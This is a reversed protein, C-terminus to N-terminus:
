EDGKTNKRAAKKATRKRTAKKASKRTTKKASRKKAARKRGGKAEKEALLTVAQDMSIEDPKTDKPITANTKEHKVYPGYRGDLVQVKQGTEPHEGLDKLVKASARKRGRGKPQALIEIAEGLALSKMHDMDRLSRFDRDGGEDERCVYPGFRGLGVLVKGGEPHAGIEKPLSVLFLADDLTVKTPDWDRPISARPPKPAKKDGSEPTEGLQVYPGYRGDLLYVQKGTEPDEGLSAPGTSAQDILRNITEEDLDAPPIDTPVNVTATEGEDEETVEIYPGYRSVRLEAEPRSELAPIPIRTVERPDIQDRHTKVLEELGNSGHWFLTLYDQWDKEGEAIRDLSQEMEATFATDVIQPFHDELLRTVAIGLFSPVLANGKTFVYDRSKIKEITESYTSPRGVGEKELIEILKGETYRARPQTEHGVAECSNCEPNDGKEIPPLLKDQSEDYGYAKRWGAFDVKKGTAKFVADEVEVLLTTSTYQENKMQSALTRMYILRYLQLEKGSLGTSEPRAFSEGAPRIAEHAEQTKSGRAEYVRPEPNLYEQGYHDKVANRAGDLGEQSLQPSDSRHYTIFGNEYLRQAIRMADRSSLGLRSNAERQLSATVFPEYPKSSGKRTQVDTVTWTGGAYQQALRIATSENLLEIGPDQKLQGTLDDFFRGSNVIRKGAREMIAAEFAQGDKELEAKLDWYSSTKFRMRERERDVILKLAVSQVRGASLGGWRHAIIKQSVLPSLEYGLLRDMIRRSEQANVLSQDIERPNDIANQVAKKTIENFVVRKVPVKPKLAQVLHWSIAEGERDPDTALYVLEADKLKQKLTSIVKKSRESVVYIAEFGDEKIIVGHKLGEAKAYKEPVDAKKSPLDRIHGVSSEVQFEKGLWSKLKNAKTPSEVIVLKKPM